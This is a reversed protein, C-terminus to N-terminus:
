SLTHHGLRGPQSLGWGKGSTESSLQPEKILTAPGMQITAAHSVRRHERLQHLAPMHAPDLRPAQTGTHTVVSGEVLQNGM